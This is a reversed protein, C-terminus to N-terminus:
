VTSKDLAGRWVRLEPENPKTQNKNQKNNQQQKRNYERM